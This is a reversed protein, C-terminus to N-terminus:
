RPIAKITSGSFRRGAARDSEDEPQHRSTMGLKAATAARGSDPFVRGGRFFWGQRNFVV